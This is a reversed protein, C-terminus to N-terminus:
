KSTVEKWVENVMTDMVPQIAPNIYDTGPVYGGTGTGHGYQILLAINEGKNENDNYWSVSADKGNKEVEFRWSAATKGSRKPTAAALADVGAQGVREVGDLFKGDKNNKLFRELNNFNGKHIFKVGM